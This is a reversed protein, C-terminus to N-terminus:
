RQVQWLEQRRSCSQVFRKSARPASNTAQTMAIASFLIVEVPFPRVRGEAILREFRPRLTEIIPRLHRDYLYRMRDSGSRAEERLISALDPNAAIVRHFTRIGDRLRDIEDDKRDLVRQLECSLVSQASGVAAKWFEEKSEASAALSPRLGSWPTVLGMVTAVLSDARERRGPM